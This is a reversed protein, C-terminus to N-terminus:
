DDGEEGEDKGHGNGHSKDNDNGNGHGKEDGHGNGNGNGHGNGNDDQDSPVSVPIVVPSVSVPVVVPSVSVPVVVPSTSPNHSGKSAHKNGRHGSGPSVPASVTSSPASANPISIPHGQDHPVVVFTRASGTNGAQDIATVLITYLRGDKDKGARSAQLNVVFSYNGQSGVSATGAPQVQGYEDVVQYHVLSPLGGSADAVSGAVTVPTFKHNPPWLANPNAGATVVPATLDIKFTLSHAPEVNNNPDQSYFQVTHVGDGLMVNNGAVFSGGDIKYFSTLTAPGDDPDAANLHIAVPTTYYGNAGLKGSAVAMTTPPTIDGPGALLARRELL